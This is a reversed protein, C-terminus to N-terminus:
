KFMIKGITYWKEESMYKCIELYMKVLNIKNSDTDRENSQTNIDHCRYIVLSKPIYYWKLTNKFSRIFFEWDNYYKIEENFYGINEFTKYYYLCCHVHMPNCQLFLDYIKNSLVGEESMNNKEFTINNNKDINKYGFCLYGIYNNTDNIHLYNYIKEFFTELVYDDDHLIFKWIGKSLKLGKNVNKYEGLNVTNNIIELRFTNNILNQDLNNIINNLVVFIEESDESCDDLLIIEIIQHLNTKQYLVSHLSEEIFSYRNYIPMIISLIPENSEINQQLGIKFINSKTDNIIKQTLLFSHITSCNKSYWEICAQSMNNWTSENCNDIIKKIEEVKHFRFYHVNEILPNYYNCMDVDSAVIPVTGLALLEIERNCKPGFGRLSLGFKSNKLLSLYEDQNYKYSEEPKHMIYLEISNEINPYKLRYQAQVENEIKGIFISEINREKYSLKESNAYHELKRPSRGWFIWSTAKNKLNNPVIPNGFLIKNYKINTDNELWSLTPRDYLLIDGIKNYWVHKVDDEVLNILNNENWLMLLERFTDNNHHWLDNRPMKPIIITPKNNNIQTNIQSNIKYLTHEENKNIIYNNLLNKWSKISLKNKEINYDDRKYVYSYKINNTNNKELINMITNLTDKNIDNHVMICSILTFNTNCKNKYINSFTNTENILINLDNCYEYHRYYIFYKHNVNNLIEQTRKIKRKFSEIHTHNLEEEIHFFLLNPYFKNIIKKKIISGEWAVIENKNHTFNEINDFYKFDNKIIESVTNLGDLENWLFDFFNNENQYNFHKLINAGDCSSGLSIINLKKENSNNIQTNIEEIKNIKTSNNKINENKIFKLVPHNIKELLQLIFKNFQITQQDKTEYLHTHICKLTKYSYFINNEELIFLNARAQPDKCQFLRWWGFNYSDDFKFVKFEDEFYDLAQQEYFGKKTKIIHKWYDTIKPNSVYMFGVNYIGYMKESKELINHPSLGVDCSKDILLDMKNLIVIDADIFLTNNYTEMAYDIVNAKNLLFERFINQKEMSQRNLNTYKNLEIKKHIQLDFNNEDIKEAIYSDCYIFIPIDKHYIELSHLLLRLDKYANKTAFTCFSEITNCVLLSKHVIYKHYYNNPNFSNDKNYEMGSHSMIKNKTRHAREFERHYHIAKISDIPNIINYKLTEGYIYNIITDCGNAGLMIKSENTMKIPSKFIWADHSDICPNGLPGDYKFKTIQNNGDFNYDDLLDFRSLSLFLNTFDYTQLKNLDEDFFIDLNAVIIISNKCFKNAFAMSDHFTMRKEIVHQKVKERFNNIRNTKDLSKFIHDLNYLKENLLHIKNICPNLINNILCITNEKSRQTDDTEYYQTILIVNDNNEKYKIKEFDNIINKSKLKSMENQIIINNNTKKLFNDIQYLLYDERLFIDIKEINNKIQYYFNKLLNEM